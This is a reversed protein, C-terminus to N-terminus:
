EGKRFLKSETRKAKMNSFNTISEIQRAFEESINLDLFRAIEKIKELTNQKLEEYEIILIPNDKQTRMVKLWDLVFDFYNGYEIEGTMFLKFFDDFSGNYEYCHSLLKTHNYFSVVTDKPSRITLIIKNKRKRVEAPLEEYLVHSNLVRPSPLSDLIFHPVAEIMGGLIKGYKTMEAKGTVLMHLIEHVWHCGTKPYGCLIVDDPRITVNTIGAIRREGFAPFTKGKYRTVNMTAGGPDSLKCTAGDAKFALYTIVPRLVPMLYFILGCRTITDYIWRKIKDLM